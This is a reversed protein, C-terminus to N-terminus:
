SLPAGFLDVLFICPEPTHLGILFDLTELLYHYSSM